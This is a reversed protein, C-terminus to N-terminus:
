PELEGDEVACLHGLLLYRRTPPGTRDGAVKHSVRYLTLGTLAAGPHERRYLRCIYAGAHTHAWPQAPLNGWFNGWRFRTMGFRSRPEPEDRVLSARDLFLEASTGDAYTARVMQWQATGDPWVFMTMAQNIRLVFGLWLLRHPPRYGRGYLPIRRRATADLFDRDLTFLNWVAVYLLLLAVGASQFAGPRFVAPGPSLGSFWRALRGWFPRALLRELRPHRDWVETPIFLAMVLTSILPFLGLMLCSGLGVQLGVFGLTVLNRLPVHLFPCFLLFPGLIEFYVVAHTLVELLRPFNVLFAGYPRQMELTSLSNLVATGAQWVPSRYKHLGAFTYLLFVQGLLAITGTSFIRTDEPGRDPEPALARDVSFAAGLPVFMSWFLMLQALTDGGQIVLPNRVDWSVLFMWSLVTMLRTRFGIGLLGACVAQVLAMSGQFLVSGGLQYLSWLTMAPPFHALITERPLVGDDAYLASLDQLRLALDVLVFAALGMRFLALSRADIGLARRAFTM